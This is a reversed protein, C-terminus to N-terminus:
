ISFHAIEARNRGNEKALYLARDAARLMYDARIQPTPTLAVIGVSITVRGTAAASNEIALAHVHTRMREAVVGAGELATGVLLAVFEEGGYRALLDGSRPLSTKLAQAVKVLCGDGSQHGYVDNLRKFHDLDIMLLALTQRNRIARCWERALTQDFCRRNAVGTLGDTLSIQELEDRAARLERRSQMYFMQIATMRVAYIVTSIAISSIGVVFHRRLLTMGLALMALTYIVPCSSDIFYTLSDQVSTKDHIKRASRVALAVALAVFPLTALLDYLGVQESLRIEEHNYWSSCVAYLWLFGTLIRYLRREELTGSGALLRVTACVALVLNEIMYTAALLSVPVPRVQGHAFPFVSFLAIYVLCAALLAQLGDLWLLLPIRENATPWSLVLLIPVGYLFFFFDSLYAVGLPAHASLDEWAALSMGCVWLLIGATVMSWALRTQVPSAWLRYCSAALALCPALLLFPYSVQMSNRIALLICLAHLGSYIGAITVLRRLRFGDSEQQPQQPDSNAQNM